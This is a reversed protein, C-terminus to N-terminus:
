MSEKNEVTKESTEDLEQAPRGGEDSTANNGSARSATM